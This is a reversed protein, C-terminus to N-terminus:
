ASTLGTVASRPHCRQRRCGPHSVHLFQTHAAARPRVAGAAPRRDRMVEEIIVPPLKWQHRHQCGYRCSFPLQGAASAPHTCTPASYSPRQRKQSCGAALCRYCAPIPADWATAWWGRCPVRALWLWSGSQHMRIIGSKQERKIVLFRQTPSTIRVANLLVPEFFCDFPIAGLAALSDATTTSVLRLKGRALDMSWCSCYRGGGCDAGWKRGAGWGVRM